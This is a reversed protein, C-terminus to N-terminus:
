YATWTQLLEKPLTPVPHDPNFNAALYEYLTRFEEDTLSRVRDRHDLSNRQWAENGMRLVVIPVFTHCNQCNNLLLERGRGPPFIEEVNVKNPVPRAGSAAATSGSAATGQSPQKPTPSSCASLAFVLAYIAIVATKRLTGTVEDAGTTAFL